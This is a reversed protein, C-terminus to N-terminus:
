LMIKICFKAKTEGFDADRRMKLMRKDCNLRLVGGCIWMEVSVIARVVDFM